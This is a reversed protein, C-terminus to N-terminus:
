MCLMSIAYANIDVFNEACDESNIKCLSQLFITVIFSSQLGNLVGFMERSHEVIWYSILEIAQILVTSNLLTSSKFLDLCLLQHIRVVSDVQLQCGELVCIFFFDTFVVPTDVVYGSISSPLLGKYRYRQYSPWRAFTLLFM